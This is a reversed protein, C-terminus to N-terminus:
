IFHVHMYLPCCALIYYLSSDTQSIDYWLEESKCFHLLFILLSAYDIDLQNVLERLSSNCVCKCFLWQKFRGCKFPSNWISLGPLTRGLHDCSLGQPLNLNCKGLPFNGQWETWLKEDFFSFDHIDTTTKLLSAYTHDMVMLGMPITKASWVCSNRFNSNGVICLM